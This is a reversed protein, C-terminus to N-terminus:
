VYNTLSSIKIHTELNSGFRINLGAEPHINDFLTTDLNLM